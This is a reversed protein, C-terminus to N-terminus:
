NVAFGNDLLTEILNGALNRDVYFTHKGLMQWPSLGMHEMEEIARETMAFFGVVSGCDRVEFDLM